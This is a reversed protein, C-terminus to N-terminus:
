AVDIPLDGVVTRLYRDITSVTRLGFSPRILSAFSVARSRSRVDAVPQGGAGGSLLGSMAVCIMLEASEEPVAQQKTASCSLVNQRV